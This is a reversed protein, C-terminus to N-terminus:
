PLSLPTSDHTPITQSSSPSSKPAPAPVPLPVDGGAISESSHRSHVPSKMGIRSSSRSISPGAEGDAETDSGVLGGGEKMGDMENHIQGLDIANRREGDEEEDVGAYMVSKREPEVIPYILSGRRLRGNEGEIVKLASKLAEKEMRAERLEDETEARKIREHAVM